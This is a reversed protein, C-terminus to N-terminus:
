ILLITFLVILGTIVMTCIAINRYHKKFFMCKYKKARKKFVHSFRNLTASKESLQELNENQNITLIISNNICKKTEEIGASINDFKEENMM